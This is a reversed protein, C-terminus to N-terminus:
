RCLGKVVQIEPQSDLDIKAVIGLKELLYEQLGATYAGGGIIYIGRSVLGDTAPTPTEMLVTGIVDVIKDYVETFAKTISTGDVEDERKQNIFIDNGRVVMSSENNAFLGGITTKISEATSDSIRVNHKTSIEYVIKSDINRGGIDITCGSILGNEDIVGIDTTSAGLNAVLTPKKAVVKQMSLLGVKLEVQNYGLSAFIGQLAERDAVPLGCPVAVVISVSGLLKDEIYKALMDELLLALAKQNKIVGQRFPRVFTTYPTIEGVFDVAQQGSAVLTQAKATNIMAIAPERVIAGRHCITIYDCGIDIIYNESSLM